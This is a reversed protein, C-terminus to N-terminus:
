AEPRADVVSKLDFVALMPVSTTPLQVPQPPDDAEDVSRPSLLVQDPEFAKPVVLRVPVLQDIVPAEPSPVKPLRSELPEEVRWFKVKTLAVPVLAVVVLKKAVVAEDVLRKEVDSLVPFMWAPTIVAPRRFPWVIEDAALRVPVRLTVEPRVVRELRKTVPEEVRWFKVPIFEVVVLAVVVL